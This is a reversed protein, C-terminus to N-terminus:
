GGSILHIVDVTAGDPICTTDFDGKQIVRGNIRVVLMRFVYGKLTLVDRITMGEHWQLPEGNVAIM